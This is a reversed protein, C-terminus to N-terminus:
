VETHFVWGLVSIVLQLLPSFCMKIEKMKVVLAPYCIKGNWLLLDCLKFFIIILISNDYLIMRLLFLNFCKMVTWVLKLSVKGCIISKDNQDKLGADLKFSGSPVDESIFMAYVLEVQIGSKLPCTLGHGQCADSSPVPLSVPVLGLFAWAYIKAATVAEHPIFNITVTTNGGRKLVCPDEDCPSVDITSIEGNEPTTDPATCKGYSIRKSSVTGVALLFVAFVLAAKM